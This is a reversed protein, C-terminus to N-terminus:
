FPLEEEHSSREVSKQLELWKEHHEKIKGYVVILRKGKLQEVSTVGPIERGDKAEFATYRSLFQAFDDPDDGIEEQIIDTIAKRMEAETKTSKPKPKSPLDPKPKSPTSETKGSVKSKSYDIVTGKEKEIGYKKLDSWSLNNLGLIRTIGRQVANAYSSKIIDGPDVDSLPLWIKTKNKKDERVRFFGDKSSRSGVVEINRNGWSFILTTMYMYNGEEDELNMKEPKGCLRWEIGFYQGVKEAGSAQLYPRGGQDVWDKEDTVKLVTKKIVDWVQVREEAEQALKKLSPLSLSVFSPTSAREEVIEGAEYPVLEDTM